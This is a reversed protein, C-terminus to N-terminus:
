RLSERIHRQRDRDILDTISADAPGGRYVWVGYEKTLSPQPRVPRLIIEDGQSELQLTDGPDLQLEQRLSKPILVRGAQDLTLSAIM